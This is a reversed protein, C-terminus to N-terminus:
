CADTAVGPSTAALDRVEPDALTMSTSAQSSGKEVCSFRLGRSAIAQLHNESRMAKLGWLEVLTKAVLSFVRDFTPRFAMGVDDEDLQKLVLIPDLGEVM